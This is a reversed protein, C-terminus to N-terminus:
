VHQEQHRSTAMARRRFRPPTLALLSRSEQDAHLRAWCGELSGADPNRDAQWRVLGVGRRPYYAALPLDAYAALFRSTCSPSCCRRASCRASLTAALAGVGASRLGGYMTFAMAAAIQWWPWNM